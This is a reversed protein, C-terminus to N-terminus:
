IAYDFESYIEDIASPSPFGDSPKRMAMLATSTPLHEGMPLDDISGSCVLEVAIVARRQAPVLCSTFDM